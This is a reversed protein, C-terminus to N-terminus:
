LKGGNRRFAMSPRAALRRGFCRQCHALRRGAVAAAADAALSGASHLAVMYMLHPARRGTDCVTMVSGVLRRLATDAASVAVVVTALLTDVSCTDATARVVAEPLPAFHICSQKRLCHATRCSAAPALRAFPATVQEVTAKDLLSVAVFALAAIM